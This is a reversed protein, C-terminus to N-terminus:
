HTLTEMLQSLRSLAHWVPISPDMPIRQKIEPIIDSIDQTNYENTHDTYTITGKGSAYWFKYTYLVNITCIHDGHYSVGILAGPNTNRIDINLTCSGLQSELVMLTELTLWQMCKLHNNLMGYLEDPTNIVDHRFVRSTKQVMFQTEIDIQENIKILVKINEISVCPIDKIILTFTKDMENMLIRMPIKRYFDDFKSWEIYNFNSIVYYCKTFM